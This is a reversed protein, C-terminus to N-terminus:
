PVVQYVTEDTNGFIDMEIDRAIEIVDDRSAHTELWLVPVLNKPARRSSNDYSDTRTKIQKSDAYEKLREIYPLQDELVAEYNLNFVGNEYYFYICDTQESLIGLFHFGTEGNACKDLHEPLEDFKIEAAGLGNKLLMLALVVLVFMLAIASVLILALVIINM